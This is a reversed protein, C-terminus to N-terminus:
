SVNWVQYAYSAGMGDDTMDMVRSPEGPVFQSAGDSAPVDIAECKEVLRSFLKPSSPLHWSIPGGPAGGVGAGAGVGSSPSFHVKHHRQPWKM